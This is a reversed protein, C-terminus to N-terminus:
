MDDFDGRSKIFKWADNIIDIDDAENACWYCTNNGQDVAVENCRQCKVVPVELITEEVFPNENIQRDRTISGTPCFLMCIRCDICKGSNFTHVATQNTLKLKLAKTPCNTTCVRCNVCSSKKIISPWSAPDEGEQYNKIYSQELRKKWTPLLSDQIKINKNVHNLHNSERVKSIVDKGQQFLSLFLDRRSTTKMGSSTAKIKRMIKEKEKNKILTFEPLHGSAELWEIATNIKFKLRGLCEYMTCELCNDLRIEVNANLGIEYWAGKSLSSLCTPIQIAGINNENKSLYSSMHYGCFLQITKVKQNNIETAVTTEDWHSATFVETPCDSLCLGCGLCNDKNLSIGGEALEIAQGPCNSVCHTCGVGNHLYNLCRTQDVKIFIGNKFLMM